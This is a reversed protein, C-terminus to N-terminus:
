VTSNAQLFCPAYTWASKIRRHKPSFAMSLIQRSRRPATQKCSVHRTSGPLHQGEINQRFPWPCSRGPDVRHQKSVVFMARLDLCIKDKSKQSFAMSLIQGSRCPATQKCCVYRTSGPLNQGEIKSFPWPCSRGPDVRHQKSVILM